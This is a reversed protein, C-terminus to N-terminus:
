NKCPPIECGPSSQEDSPEAAGQGEQSKVAQNIAAEQPRILARNSGGMGVFLISANARSNEKQTKLAELKNFAELYQQQATIAAKKSDFTSTITGFFESVITAPLLAAAAAESPKEVHLTTLMGNTFGANIVKTVFLARDFNTAVVPGKNPLPVVVSSLNVKKGLKFGATIRYPIPLRFCVGVSCDPKHVQHVIEPAIANLNIKFNSYHLKRYKKCLAANKKAGSGCSTQMGRRIAIRAAGNMASVASRITVKDDPDIDVASILTANATPSNEKTNAFGTKIAAYSKALNILVQGTQDAATVNVTKLLSNSDITVDITDKSFANNDYNVYYFATPDGFYKPSSAKITFEGEQEYLQVPVVAKPLM